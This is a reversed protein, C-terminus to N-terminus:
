GLGHQIIRVRKNLIAELMNIDSKSLSSSQQVIKKNVIKNDDTRDRREQLRRNAFPVQLMKDVSKLNEEDTFDFRIDGDLISSNLAFPNSNFCFSSGLGAVISLGPQRDADFMNYKVDNIRCTDKSM